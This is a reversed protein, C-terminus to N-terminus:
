RSWYVLPLEPVAYRYGGGWLSLLKYIPVALLSLLPAKSPYYLGEKVSLDGVYGFDKLTQNLHLTGYEVIARAQWLRCLENPSRLGPHYPFATVYLAAVLWFPWRRRVAPPALGGPPPATPSSPM